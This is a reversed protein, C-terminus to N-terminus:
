KLNGIRQMIDGLMCLENSKLDPMEKDMVAKLKYALENIQRHRKLTMPKESSACRDQDIEAATRLRAEMPHGKTTTLPFLNHRLEEAMQRRAEDYHERRWHIIDWWYSNKSFGLEERALCALEQGIVSGQMKHFEPSEFYRQARGYHRKFFAVWESPEVRLRGGRREPGIYLTAPNSSTTTVKMSLITVPLPDPENEIRYRTGEIHKIKLAM